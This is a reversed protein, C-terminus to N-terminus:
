DAQIAEVKIQINGDIDSEIASNNNYKIKLEYEDTQKNSSTLPILETKNNNLNVINGNNTLIFNLDAISNNVIEIYYNLDTQSINIDDFNKVSFKYVTDQNGDIKINSNGDVVFIPKAIEAIGNSNIQIRNKAFSNGKMIELWLLIMILILICLIIFRMIKKKKINM